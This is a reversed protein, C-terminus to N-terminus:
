SDGWSRLASRVNELDRELQCTAIVVEIDDGALDGDNFARTLGLVENTLRELRLFRPTVQGTVGSAPSTEM